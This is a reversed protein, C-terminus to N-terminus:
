PRLTRDESNMKERKNKWTQRVNSVLVVIFALFLILTVVGYLNGRQIFEAARPNPPGGGAWWYYVTLNGFWLVLLFMVFDIIWRRIM